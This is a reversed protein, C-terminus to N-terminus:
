VASKLHHFRQGQCLRRKMREGAADALHMDYDVAGNKSHDWALTDTPPPPRLLDIMRLTILLTVAPLKRLPFGLTISDVDLGRLLSLTRTKVLTVRPIDPLEVRGELLALPLARWRALLSYSDHPSVVARRLQQGHTTLDLSTSSIAPSLLYLLHLLTHVEEPDGALFGSAFRLLEDVHQATIPHKFPWLALHRRTFGFGEKKPPGLRDHGPAM